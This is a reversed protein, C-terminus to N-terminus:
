NLFFLLSCRPTGTGDQQFNFQDKSTPDKNGHGSHQKANPNQCAQVMRRLDDEQNTISLKSINLGQNALM